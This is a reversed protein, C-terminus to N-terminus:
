GAKKGFHGQKPPKMGKHMSKKMKHKQAAAQHLEHVKKLHPGGFTVAPALLMALVIVLIARM